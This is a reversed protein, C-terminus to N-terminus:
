LNIERFFVFTMMFLMIDSFFIFFPIMIDEAVCKKWISILEAGYVPVFAQVFLGVVPFSANTGKWFPVCLNIQM